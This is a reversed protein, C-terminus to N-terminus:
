SESSLPYETRREACERSPMRIARQGGLRILRRVSPEITCEAKVCGNRAAHPRAHAAAAHEDLSTFEGGWSVPLISPPPRVSSAPNSPPLASSALAGGAAWHLAASRLSHDPRM